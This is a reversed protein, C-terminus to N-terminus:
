LNKARNVLKFIRGSNAMASPLWSINASRKKALACSQLTLKYIWTFLREKDVQYEHIHDYMEIFANELVTPAIESPVNKLIVGYLCPSYLDYLKEWAPLKRTTLAHLFQPAM